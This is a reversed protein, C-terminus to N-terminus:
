PRHQVRGTRLSPAATHDIPLPLWGWGISPFLSQPVIARINSTDHTRLMQDM